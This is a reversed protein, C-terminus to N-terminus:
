GTRHIIDIIKDISLEYKKPECKWSLFNKCLYFKRMYDITISAFNGCMINWSGRLECITYRYCWPKYQEILTNSMIANILASIGENANLSMHTVANDGQRKYAVWITSLKGKM